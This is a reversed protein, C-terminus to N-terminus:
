GVASNKIILSTFDHGVDTQGDPLQHFKQQPGAANVAPKRPKVTCQFTGVDVAFQLFSGSVAILSLYKEGYLPLCLVDSKGKLAPSVANKGILSARYDNILDLGGSHRRFLDSLIHVGAM